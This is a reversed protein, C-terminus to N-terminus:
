LELFVEDGAVFEREFRKKDAYMKMREAAKSLNEKLLDQM